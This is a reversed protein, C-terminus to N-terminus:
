LWYLYLLSSYLSFYCEIEIGFFNLNLFIKDMKLNLANKTAFLLPNENTVLFEWLSEVGMVLTNYKSDAGAITTWHGYYM